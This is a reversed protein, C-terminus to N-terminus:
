GKHKWCRFHNAKAVRISDPWFACVDTCDSWARYQQNVLKLNEDQYLFIIISVEMFPLRIIENLFKPM